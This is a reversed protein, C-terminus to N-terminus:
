KYESIKGSSLSFPGKGTASNMEDICLTGYIVNNGKYIM